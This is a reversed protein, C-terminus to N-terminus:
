LSVFFNRAKTAHFRALFANMLPLARGVMEAVKEPPLGALRAALLATEKEFLAAIAEEYMVFDKPSFGLQRSFGAAQLEGWLEIMWADDKAVLTRGTEDVIVALLGIAVMDGLVERDLNAKGLLAHADVTDRPGEEHGLAPALRQRVEALLARQVPTFHDDKEELLARIAKLPLFREHQLKKILQIRELHVDGYYAMNHGTKRGEPLLGQQIYFHIVQRPLGTKDCLDKM